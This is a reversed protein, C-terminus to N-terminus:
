QKLKVIDRKLNGIEVDHELRKARLIRAEKVKSNLQRMILRRNDVENQIQDRIKKVDEILKKREELVKDFVYLKYAPIKLSPKTYDVHIKNKRIIDLITARSIHYKEAVEKIMYYKKDILDAEM